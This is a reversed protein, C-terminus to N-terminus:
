ATQLGSHKKGDAMQQTKYNAQCTLVTTGRLFRSSRTQMNEVNVAAYLYLYLICFVFRKNERPCLYLVANNFSCM